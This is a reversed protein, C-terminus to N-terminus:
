LLDISFDSCHFFSFFHNALTGGASPGTSGLDLLSQMADRLLMATWGAPADHLDVVNLLDSTLVKFHPLVESRLHELLLQSAVMKWQSLIPGVLKVEPKGKLKLQCMSLKDHVQKWESCTLALPYAKGCQDAIEKRIEELDDLCKAGNSAKLYIAKLEGLLQISQPLSAVAALISTAGDGWVGIISGIILSWPGGFIQGNDIYVTYDLWTRRDVIIENSEHSM